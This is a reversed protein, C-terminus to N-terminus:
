APAPQGSAPTQRIVEFPYRAVERWEEQGEAKCLIRFHYSGVGALPLAQLPGVFRMRTSETLDIDYATVRDHLSEGSPGFVEIRGQGRCPRAPDQRRWLTVLTCSVAVAASREPIPGPGSLLLEEIVDVLTVVNTGSEVICRGCLITWVHDIM